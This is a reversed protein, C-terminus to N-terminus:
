PIYTIKKHIHIHRMHLTAFPITTRSPLSFFVSLLPFSGPTSTSGTKCSHDCVSVYMCVTLTHINTCTHCHHHVLALVIFSEIEKCQFSVHSKSISESPSVLGNLKKKKEKKNQKWVSSRDLTPLVFSLFYMQNMNTSSLIEWKHTHIHTHVRKRPTCMFFLQSLLHRSM